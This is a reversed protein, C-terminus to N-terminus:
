KARASEHYKFYIIKESDTIDQENTINVKLIEFRSTTKSRFGQMTHGMANNAQGTLDM